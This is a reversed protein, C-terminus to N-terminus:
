DIFSRCLGATQAGHCRPADSFLAPYHRFGPVLLALLLAALLWPAAVRLWKKGGARLRLFMENLGIALLLYFAPLGFILYRHHLMSSGPLWIIALWPLLLWTLLFYLVPYNKAQALRYVSWLLLPIVPVALWLPEQGVTWKGILKLFFLPNPGLMRALGEKQILYLGHTGYGFVRLFAPVWPLYITIGLLLGGASRLLFRRRYAYNERSIWYGFGALWALVVPGLWGAMYHSYWGGALGLGFLISWAFHRAHGALRYFALAASLTFFVIWIYPRGERSYYLPYIHFALLAGAPLGVRAGALRTGLTILLWVSAIGALAMPLRFLFRVVPQPQDRFYNARDRLFFLSVLGPLPPDPQDKRSPAWKHQIFEAAGQQIDLYTTKEDAWLEPRSLAALRLAAACLMVALAALWMLRRHSALSDASVASRNTEMKEM